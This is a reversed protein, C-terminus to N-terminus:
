RCTKGDEPLTGDQFFANIAATVCSNGSTVSGHGPGDYTLLHGSELQQAMTVAQQYPTASDGTAGVVLIPAAGKGTLKLNPVSAATWRECALDGGMSGGFVPAKQGLEDQLAFHAAVGEDAHDLCRTAPFAYAMTKWGNDDRGTLADSAKLLASGDGRMAAAVTATLRPYIGAGSYLFGAVGTAAKGQTLQRDGVQQPSADLGRLFSNITSIVADRSDGFTCASTSACWDAYLNLALEFGEVQSVEESNTIDVASDLVLRGTREPFLEAYMSGLYTGYSVGLYNLKEAGMLFRLLDLDRVTEISSIHDLLEGSAERCQRAFAAWVDSLTTKEAEDDPTDDASYAEDTQETTGCEVHTSEGSGRPDWGVIDYGEWADSGLSRSFYVGGVGPGGPNVFLPGKSPNASPAKMVKIDLSAKGPNEWDLPVKMTTCLGGKCRQWDLTQEWYPTLDEGLSGPLQVTPSSATVGLQRDPNETGTQPWTEHESVPVAPVGPKQEGVTPAQQASPEASPNPQHGPAIMGSLVFAVVLSVAGGILMVQMWGVWTRM